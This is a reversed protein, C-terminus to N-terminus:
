LVLWFMAGDAYLPNLNPAAFFIYALLLVIVVAIGLVIRKTKKM